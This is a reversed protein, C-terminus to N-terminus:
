IPRWYDGSIAFSCVYSRGGSSYYSGLTTDNCSPPAYQDGDYYVSHVPAKAARAVSGLPGEWFGAVAMAMVIALFLLALRKM